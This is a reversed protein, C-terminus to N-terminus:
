NRASDHASSPERFLYGVGPETILYQPHSPDAEMKRRLQRVYVRLYDSEEGYEQGWVQQLLFRHTLVKEQHELFVRLLAFETVTLHVGQGALLCQHQALHLVIRGDQSSRIDSDRQAKGPDHAHKRRLLARLRALFEEERFPIKIYDDAGLDLARTIHQGATHEAMMILPVMPWARRVQQCLHLDDSVLAVLHPQQEGVISLSTADSEQRLILYDQRHRRFVTLVSANTGLLVVQIKRQM